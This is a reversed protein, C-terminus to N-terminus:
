ARRLVLPITGKPKRKTESSVVLVAGRAQGVTRWFVRPAFADAVFNKTLGYLCERQAM